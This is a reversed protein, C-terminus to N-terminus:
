PPQRAQTQYHRLVHVRLRGSLGGADEEGSAARGADLRAVLEAVTVGETAAVDKLADWFEAELSISTRHGAITLSRKIPRKTV